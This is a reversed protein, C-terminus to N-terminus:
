DAPVTDGASALNRRLLAEPDPDRGMFERFLVDPDASDGRSLIANLYDRGTERNFIGERKFRSFADADLVESWKYSYYGSAYGGMFIHTFGNIFHDHAFEPKLTFPERVKQAYTIVNGDREPDFLMHLALDVAGFSLQRMQAKAAMFTRTALLKEFLEDPLPEGTEFHRAFRGLAEREWTWNEMIQSPLEVWDRPVRTGARAPVEVKSLCHHLLHGFEHFTTQVEDHTLLASQGEQPPTFNGCMLGLHPKFSGDVQPGGTIFANMWAGGRKSERPFWDAYFSGLHLDEEGETDSHIDYLKVEPHWVLAGQRETVRIGFLRGSIEFLGSLVQELPFYPRLEEEDLDFKAKRLKETVYYLDWPKLSALDLQQAAFETLESIEAQWYPDTRRTLDQVFALAEQGTKVMNEELRYDAFDKHGLLEALEQRLALIELILPENDLDGESARSVQASYLKERLTRKDAYKMFPLYSPQHLTFRYGAVGKAQANAKAQNKVSDPLGALESEDTLIMEFANTADLVNEGFETHLKSLAVSIAQVRAKQAAPLDAGAREFDRVTKDLHRKRVGILAKAEATEAYSKIVRWLADNLPLKAFFESFKPVVANYAQRLEPTNMVSNLHAAITVVRGLREELEDLAELTNAYTREGQQTIAELRAEAEALAEHVGAEIHEAAIEDFPIEFDRSLLPNM